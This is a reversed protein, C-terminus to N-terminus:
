KARSLKEEIGAASAKLLEQNIPERVKVGKALGRLLETPNPVTNPPLIVVRNDIIELTVCDGENIGLKQRISAPITIKGKQLVKVQEGM